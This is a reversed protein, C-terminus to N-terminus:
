DGTRDSKRKKSKKGSGSKSGGKKKMSTFKHDLDREDFKPSENKDSETKDGDKDSPESEDNSDRSEDIISMPNLVVQEGADLGKTIEVFKDNTKGLEVTKRNVRGYNNVYVWTEGNSQVVSQVPVSIIDDLRDVHIEVVATMGPKLKDVDEDIRVTTSYVKTDSSLWGGRDPLVAVKTVTAKYRKNPFMDIRVTASLGARVQDLVSEHVATTVQM